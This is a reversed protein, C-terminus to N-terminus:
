LWTMKSKERRGSEDYRMESCVTMEERKIDGSDAREERRFSIGMGEGVKAKVVKRGRAEKSKGRCDLFVRSSFSNEKAVERVADNRYDM